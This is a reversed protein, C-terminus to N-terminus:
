WVAAKAYFLSAEPRCAADGLNRIKCSPSSTTRGICMSHHFVGNPKGACDIGNEHQSEMMRACGMQALPLLLRAFLGFM